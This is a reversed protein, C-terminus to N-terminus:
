KDRGCETVLRSAVLAQVESCNETRLERSNNVYRCDKSQNRRLMGEFSGEEPRVYYVSEKGKPDRAYAEKGPFERIDMRDPIWRERHEVTLPKVRSSSSTVTWYSLAYEVTIGKDETRYATDKLNVTFTQGKFQGGTVTFTNKNAAVVQKNKSPDSDFETYM